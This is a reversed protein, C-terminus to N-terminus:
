QSHAVLLANAFPTKASMPVAKTRFGTRDLLGIWDAISRCHLQVWGHGRLLLVTQDVWRSIRFPLGGAADGVRLLLLGGPSLAARVRGLVAEQSDRDMYHLVDFVAVTDPAGFPASRIDGLQVTARDGVAHNAREVDRLMLEVGHFQWAVPPPPWDPCWEGSVFIEEAALLWAALVGQGCGLDLIRAQGPILGMALIAAFVPDRDLKGRAFHYAFRGSTRYRAVAAQLLRRKLAQADM